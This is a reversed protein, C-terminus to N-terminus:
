RGVVVVVVVLVAFAHLSSINLGYLRCLAGVNCRPAGIRKAIVDDHDSMTSVVIVELWLSGSCALRGLVCDSGNLRHNPSRAFDTFRCKM